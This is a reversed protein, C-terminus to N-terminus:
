YISRLLYSSIYTRVVLSFFALFTHAAQEYFVDFNCYSVWYWMAGRVGLFILQLKYYETLGTMRGGKRRLKEELKPNWWASLLGLLMAYSAYPLFLEDLNPSVEQDFILQKLAGQFTGQVQAGVQFDATMTLVGMVNWAIQGAWSLAWVLGGLFPIWLKWQGPENLHRREPNLRDMVRRMHDTKAVYHTAKLRKSAM